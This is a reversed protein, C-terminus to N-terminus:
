GRTIGTIIKILTSKGAGNEGVVAHITGRKVALSIRDLAVVGPYRKSISSLALVPVPAAAAAGATSEASEFQLSMVM